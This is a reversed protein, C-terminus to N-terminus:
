EQVIEDRNKCMYQLPAGIIPRMGIHMLITCYNSPFKLKLMKRLPFTFRKSLCVKAYVLNIQSRFGLFGRRQLKIPKPNMSIGQQSVEALRQVKETGKRDLNTCSFYVQSYNLPFLIGPVLHASKTRILQRRKHSYLKTSHNGRGV